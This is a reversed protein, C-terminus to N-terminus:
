PPADAGGSRGNGLAERMKRIIEPSPVNREEMLLLVFNEALIEEPHILYRTNRGVKEIYGSVERIDLLRPSEGDHAPRASPTDGGSQVPLLRFTIYDFLTGGRRFDYKEAGAILVPVAWVEEGSVRVRIAHDNKLADPNTIKRDALAAPLEIEGVKIFGIIEYLRERLGPSRRTLIHFIEHCLMRPIMNKNAALWPAPIVIADGRTYPPGGDEEGSTRAMYITEPLPLSLREIRPKVSLLADTIEKMGAEDWALASSGIFDLFEAETVTRDTKMRAFRDFPSLRKIFDDRTMLIRRGEEASAFKLRTKGGVRLEAHSLRPLLIFLVIIALSIRKM